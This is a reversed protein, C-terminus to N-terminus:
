AVVPAPGVIPGVRSKFKKLQQALSAHLEHVNMSASRDIKTQPESAATNTAKAGTQFTPMFPAAGRTSAAPFLKQSLKDLTELTPVASSTGLENGADIISRQPQSAETAVGERTTTVHIGRQAVVLLEGLRAKRVGMSADVRAEAVSLSQQLVRARSEAELCRVEYERREARLATLEAEQEM